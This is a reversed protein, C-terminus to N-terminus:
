FGSGRDCVPCQLSVRFEIPTKAFPIKIVTQHPHQREGLASFISNSYPNESSQCSKFTPAPQIHIGIHMFYGLVTLWTLSAESPKKYGAKELLLFCLMHRGSIGCCRRLGSRPAEGGPQRLRLPSPPSRSTPRRRRTMVVSCPDDTTTVGRASVTREM